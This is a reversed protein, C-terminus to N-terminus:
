KVNNSMESFSLDEMDNCQIRSSIGQLRGKFKEFTSSYVMPARRSGGANSPCWYILIPKKALKVPFLIISFCPLNEELMIRRMNWYEVPEDKERNVTTSDKLEGWSKESDGREPHLIPELATLKANLRYIVFDYTEKMKLAEYYDFCLQKLEVGADVM